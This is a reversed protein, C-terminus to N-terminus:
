IVPIINQVGKDLYAAKHLGLRPDTATLRDVKKPWGTEFEM